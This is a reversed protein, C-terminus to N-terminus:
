QPEIQFKVKEKKGQYTSSLELTYRHAGKADVIAVYHDSGPELKVVEAKSKKPFIAQATVSLDKLGIPALEHTLPYIRVGNSDNALEWYMSKTGEVVGGHPASVAGPTKDHGEHAFAGQTAVLIALTLLKAKM